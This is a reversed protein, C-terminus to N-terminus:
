DPNIRSPVKRARRIARALADHESRRRRLQGPLKARVSPKRLERQIVAVRGPPTRRLTLLDPFLERVIFAILLDNSNKPKAPRGARRNEGDVIRRLAPTLQRSAADFEGFNLARTRADAEAATRPLRKDQLARQGRRLARTTARSIDRYKEEATRRPSM